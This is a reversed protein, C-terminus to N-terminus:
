FVYGLKVAVGQAKTTTNLKDQSNAILISSEQTETESLFASVGFSLGKSGGLSFNVTHEVRPENGANPYLLQSPLLNKIETFRGTYQAFKYGLTIVGFKTEILFSLRTPTPEKPGQEVEAGEPAVSDPDILPAEYGFAFQFKNGIIGLAFGGIPFM